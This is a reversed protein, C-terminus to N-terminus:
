ISFPRNLQAIGVGLLYCYLHLWANSQPFLFGLSIFFLFWLHYRLRRGAMCSFRWSYRGLLAYIVGSLGVTPVPPAAYLFSLAGIPYSAAVAYSSLLMPLTVQYSFAICLLVWCNVALHLWNAHFFPYLARHPLPAGPFLGVDEAPIHMCQLVAAALAIALSVAQAKQRQVM